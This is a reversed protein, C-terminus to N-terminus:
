FKHTFLSQRAENVTQATCSKSYMLVTFRELLHMHKSDESLESPNETLTIMTETVEEFSTWAKWATKKGIGIMSSTVDCGSFAHFFPLASCKKDGLENSVVHIPIDKYSKGTGFGIWLESLELHMLKHFLHICIVVVDSDVTRIYATKHGDMVADYLHLLMRTDAEEHDSPSIRALDVHKNSLVLEVKTSLLHFDSSATLSLLKESMYKFMEEKNESVKLFSQWDKGKPIPINEAARIRRERTTGIRKVRTQKKLSNEPYRDWVADVRTTISNVQSKIFPLIHNPIYEGFVTARKPKVMHIVAPM